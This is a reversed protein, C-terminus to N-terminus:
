PRGGLRDLAAQAARTLQAEPAGEALARLLRRAEPTAAHELVEVARQEPGSEPEDPLALLKEVRRRTEPSPKGALAARLAPQALTGLKGLERMAQERVGFRDSDLDAILRAMRAADPPKAPRVREQLFPVSLAPADALAWVARYARAADSGSLGAWHADLEKPALVAPRPRRAQMVEAVDWVLVTTDAGASALRKGDPSFTLMAVGGRHGQFSHIEEGTVADWVRVWGCDENKAYRKKEEPLGQYSGDNTTAVTRGDPSLAFATINGGTSLVARAKRSAVEWLYVSHRWNLAALTRGDASFAAGHVASPHPGILRREAGAAVDWLHLSLSPGGDVALTRGDPVFALACVFGEVAPARWSRLERGAAVDWLRVKGGLSGDLQPNWEWTALTRSDPSLAMRHNLGTFLRHRERGTEADWVQIVRNASVAVIAQCRDAFGLGMLSSINGPIHRLEKGTVADWVRIDKAEASALLKGDPSFALARVHCEPGDFQRSLKGSAVDFVHLTNNNGGFLLLTRADLHCCESLNPRPNVLCLVETGSAVDWFRISEHDLANLAKGDLTFRVTYVRGPLTEIRRGTAVDWLKIQESDAGQRDQTVLLRLDPSFVCLHLDDALQWSHRSKGTAVDWVRVEGPQNDTGDVPKKSFAALTKGDASVAITWPKDKHGTFRRVEKGSTVDWQRITQDLGRSFVSKSDTAFVVQEVGNWVGTPDSGHGRFCQLQQGTAVDWIRVTNDQGGCAVTKGDPAYAVAMVGSENGSFHRVERGTAADSLRLEKADGCIILKGDPSGAVARVWTSHRFRVTGLRLLAGPPLPDGHADVRAPPEAGAPLGGTGALVVALWVAVPATSTRMVMAGLYTRRTGVGRTPVLFVAGAGRM